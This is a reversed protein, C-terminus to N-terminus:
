ARIIRPDRVALRTKALAQLAEPTVSLIDDAALPRGLRRETLRELLDLDITERRFWGIYGEPVNDSAMLWSLAKRPTDVQIDVDVIRWEHHGLVQRGPHKTTDLVDVVDGRQPKTPHGAHRTSAWICLRPKPMAPTVGLPVLALLRSAALWKFLTRRSAM